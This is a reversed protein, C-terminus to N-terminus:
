FNFTKEPVHVIDFPKLYFPTPEEGRLAKRLDVRYSKQQGGELRLVVVASPKSRNPDFGGSEMIAELATLPRDMAVRGPRLVAGSVYVGAATNLLSVNIENIKLLPKYAQMLDAQLEQQTKGAAKLEGLLPLTIAGNLQVKVVTNLNTDGEFVVKVVDGEQLRTSAARPVVASNTAAEAAAAAEFSSFEPATHQCGTLVTAAIMLTALALTMLHTASVDRRPSPGANTRNIKTKM